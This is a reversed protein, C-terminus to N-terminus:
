QCANRDRRRPVGGGHSLRFRRHSPSAAYTVAVRAPRSCGASAERALGFAGQSVRNEIRARNLSLFVGQSRHGSLTPDRRLTSDQDFVRALGRVGVRQITITLPRPSPDRFASASSAKGSQPLGRTLSSRVLRSWTELSHAGPRMDPRIRGGRSQCRSGM